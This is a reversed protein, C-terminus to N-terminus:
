AALDRELYALILNALLQEAIKRTRARFIVGRRPYVIAFHFHHRRRSEQHPTGVHHWEVISYDSATVRSGSEDPALPWLPRV